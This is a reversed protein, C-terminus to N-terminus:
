TSGEILCCHINEILEKKIVTNQASHWLDNRVINFFSSKFATKFQLLFKNSIVYFIDFFVYVADVFGSNQIHEIMNWNLKSLFIFLELDRFNGIPCLEFIVPATNFPEIISTHYIKTVTKM